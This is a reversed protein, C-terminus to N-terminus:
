GTSPPQLDSVLPMKESSIPTNRQSHSRPLTNPSTALPRLTCVFGQEASPHRDPVPLELKHHM